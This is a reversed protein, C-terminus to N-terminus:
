LQLFHWLKLTGEFHCETEESTVSLCNDFDQVGGVWVSFRPCETSESFDRGFLPVKGKRVASGGDGMRLQLTSGQVVCIVIVLHM